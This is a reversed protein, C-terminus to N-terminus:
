VMVDFKTENEEETVIGGEREFITGMNLANANEVRYLLPIISCLISLMCVIKTNTLIDKSTEYTNHNQHQLLKSCKRTYCIGQNINKQKIVRNFQFSQAIACVLIIAKFLM